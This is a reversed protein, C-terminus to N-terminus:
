KVQKMQAYHLLEQVDTLTNTLQEVLVPHIMGDVQHQLLFSKFEAIKQDFVISLEEGQHRQLADLFVDLREINALATQEHVALRPLYLHKMDTKVAELLAQIARLPYMGTSIAANRWPGLRLARITEDTAQGFAFIVTGMDIDQAALVQEITEQAGLQAYMPYIGSYVLNGPILEKKHLLVSPRVESAKAYYAQPIVVDVHQSWNGIKTSEAGPEPAASVILNPSIRKMEKYLHSVFEDEQQELWKTWITWLERQESSIELPDWSHERQFAERAYLSFCYTDQWDGDTHPFRMFDLNIGAVRYTSVIEIVINLLYKRVSPNTLDLWFYGTGQQPLPKQSHAQRQSLASWEPYARLVPGGTTDVGVMFGDLWAHVAIGRLEGEMVFAELPDYGRFAPHQAEIGKVMATHSPYITYGWLWTELYLENFGAAQMRDLTRGVEERNKEVPRYWVGRAEAVRSPLSLLYGEWAETSATTAKSRCGEMDTSALQRAEELLQDARALHLRALDYPANIYRDWNNEIMRKASAIRTTVQDLCRATEQDAM